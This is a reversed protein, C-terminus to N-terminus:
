RTEYFCDMEEINEATYSRRFGVDDCGVWGGYRELVVKLFAALMHVSGPNYSISFASAPEYDSVKQMSEEDWGEYYGCEASMSEVPWFREDGTIPNMYNINRAQECPDESLPTLGRPVEYGAEIAVRMIDLVGIKSKTFYFVDEM